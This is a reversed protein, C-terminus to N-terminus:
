CELSESIKLCALIEDNCRTFLEDFINGIFGTPPEKLKRFEDASVIEKLRAEGDVRSIVPIQKFAFDQLERRQNSNAVQLNYIAQIHSPATSAFLRSIKRRLEKRTEKQGSSQRNAALLVMHEELSPSKNAHVTSGSGLPIGYLQEFYQIFPIVKTSPRFIEYIYRSDYPLSKCAIWWECAGQFDRVASATKLYDSFTSIQGFVPDKIRQLYSSFAFAYVNRFAILITVERFGSIIDALQILTRAPNISIAIESSIIVSKPNMNLVEDRLNETPTSQSSESSGSWASIGEMHFFLPHHSKDHFLCSEPYLHGKKLLATRHQWLSAQLSSTATKPLGVHLYLNEIM